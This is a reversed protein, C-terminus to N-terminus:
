RVREELPKPNGGINAKMALVIRGTEFLYSSVFTLLHAPFPWFVLLRKTKWPVKALLWNLSSLIFLRLIYYGTNALKLRKYLCVAKLYWTYLYFWTYNPIKHWCFHKIDAGIIDLRDGNWFVLSCLKMALLHLLIDSYNTSFWPM